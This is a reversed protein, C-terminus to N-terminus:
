LSLNIPNIGKCLCCAYKSVTTMVQSLQASGMVSVRANKWFMDSRYLLSELFVYLGCGYSDPRISNFEQILIMGIVSIYAYTGSQWGDRNLIQLAHIIFTIVFALWLKRSWFKRGCRRDAQSCRCLGCGSGDKSRSTM